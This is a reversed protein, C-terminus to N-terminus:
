ASQLAPPADLAAMLAATHTQHIMHGGGRVRHLTSDPILRHLRKSHGFGIVRDADGAIIAVPATIRAYDEQAAFAHPILMATEAAAARLQSPRLAMSRPFASFKAPTRPPGFFMRMLLPWAMRSLAPAITYRVIDGLIPIAPVSLGLFGPRFTPFYYGSALVLRQVMDPHRAALQVAISAGFSHGLVTAKEVGILGLAKHILDAQAAPTWLRRRPRTSHGFGPRDFVIVRHTEAARDLLGSAAFDQIMAGNGHLLVLPPGSGREVFHLRLGDVELIRGKAPNDREAKRALRANILAAATLAAVTAAASLAITKSKM